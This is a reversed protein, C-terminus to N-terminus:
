KVKALLNPLSRSVSDTGLVGIPTTIGALILESLLAEPTRSQPGLEGGKLFFLIFFLIFLYFIFFQIL